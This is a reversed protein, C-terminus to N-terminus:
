ILSGFIFTFEVVSDNTLTCKEDGPRLVSRPQMHIYCWRSVLPTCETFKHVPSCTLNSQWSFDLKNGRSANVWEATIFTVIYTVLGAVYNSNVVGHLRCIARVLVLMSLRAIRGLSYGDTVRCGSELFGEARKSAKLM